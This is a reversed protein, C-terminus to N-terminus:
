VHSLSDALVASNSTDLLRQWASLGVSLMKCENPSESCSGTSASVGITWLLSHSILGLVEVLAVLPLTCWRSMMLHSHLCYAVLCCVQGFFLVLSQVQCIDDLFCHFRCLVM